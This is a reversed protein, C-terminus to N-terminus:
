HKLVMSELYIILGYPKCSFSRYSFNFMCLINFVLSISEFSNLNKEYLYCNLSSKPIVWVYNLISSFFDTCLFTQNWYKKLAIVLSLILCWFCDSQGWFNLAWLFLFRVKTFSVWLSSNYSLYESHAFLRRKLRSPTLMAIYLFLSPSQIISM